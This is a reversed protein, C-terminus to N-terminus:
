CEQPQTPRRVARSALLSVADVVARAASPRRVGPHVTVPAHPLANRSAWADQRQMAVLYATMPDM